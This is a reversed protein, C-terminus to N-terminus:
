MEAAISGIMSLVFGLIAYWVLAPASASGAFLAILTIGGVMSTKSVWHKSNAANKILGFSALFLGISSIVGVGVFLPLFFSGVGGFLVSSPTWGSQLGMLLSYAVYLYALSGLFALIFGLAGNGSQKNASKAM